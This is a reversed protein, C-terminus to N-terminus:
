LLPIQTEVTEFSSDYTVTFDATADEPTGPKLNVDKVEAPAVSLNKESVVVGDKEVVVVVDITSGDAVNFYATRSESTTLARGDPSTITVACGDVGDTVNVAVAANVVPCAVGVKTTQGAQIGFSGSIGAYRKAGWGDNMTVADASTINEVFVKYGYGVPFVLNAFSGLLVESSILEDGKYLTVLFLDAEEKTITSTTTSRTSGQLMVAVSGVGDRPETDEEVNSCGVAVLLVAILCLCFSTRLADFRLIWMKM